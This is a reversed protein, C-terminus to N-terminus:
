MIPISPPAFSLTPEFMSAPAPEPVQPAPALPEPELPEPIFESILLEPTPAGLDIAEDFSLVLWQPLLADLQGSKYAEETITIARGYLGDNTAILDNYYTKSPDFKTFESASDSLLPDPQPSPEPNPPLPEPATLGGGDILLDPPTTFAEGVPSVGEIYTGAAEKTAKTEAAAEKLLENIAAPAKQALQLDKLADQLDAVTVLDSIFGLDAISQGAQKRAIAETFRAELSPTTADQVPSGIQLAISIPLLNVLDGRDVLIAVDDVYGNPKTVRLLLDTIQPNGAQNIALQQLQYGGSAVSTSNFKVYDGNSGNGTFDMIYDLSSAPNQVDSYTQFEDNGDGGTLYNIGSIQGTTTSFAILTDNGLNGYLFDNDAGGGIYDNDKGGYVTDNGEAARLVDNGVNGYIVDNGVGGYIEDASDSLQDNNVNTGVLFDDGSYGFLTDSGLDGYVTDNGNSALVYDNDGGGYIQSGIIAGVYNARIDDNGANGFLSDGGSDAFIIDADALAQILDFGGFGNMSDIGSTGILTDNGSTGPFLLTM